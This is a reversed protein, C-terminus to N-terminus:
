FLFIGLVGIFNTAVPFLNGQFLSSWEPISDSGTFIRQVKNGSNDKAHWQLSFDMLREFGEVRATTKAAIAIRNLFAKSTLRVLSVVIHAVGLLLAYFYFLQLSEGAQYHSFFDVVRGVVFPPVLEYFLVGFLITNFFVYKSKNEGLFHWIAKLVDFWSGQGIAANKSDLTM